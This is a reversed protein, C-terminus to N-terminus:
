FCHNRKPHCIGLQSPSQQCLSVLLDPRAHLWGLYFDKGTNRPDYEILTKLVPDYM